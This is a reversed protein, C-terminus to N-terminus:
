VCRTRREDHSVVIVGFQRRRNSLIEELRRAQEGLPRGPQRMPNEIPYDVAKQWDDLPDARDRICM